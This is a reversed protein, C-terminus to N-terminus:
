VAEMLWLCRALNHGQLAAEIAEVTPREGRMRCYHLLDEVNAVSQSSFRLAKIEFHWDDEDDSKCGADRLSDIEAELVKVRPIRKRIAETGADTITKHLEDPDRKYWLAFADVCKRLGETHLMYWAFDSDDTVRNLIHRCAKIAMSEADPMMSGELSERKWGAANEDAM